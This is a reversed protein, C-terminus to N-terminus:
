RTTERANQQASVRIRRIDRLQQDTVTRAAAVTRQRETGGATPRQPVRAELRYELVGDVAVEDEDAPTLQVDYVDIFRSQGTARIIAGGPIREVVLGTVTDVPSGTYTERAIRRRQTLGVRTPILPNRARADDAQTQVVERSGGFWNFPNLRSDRVTGCASLTLIALFCLLTLRRM